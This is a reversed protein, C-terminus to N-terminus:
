QAFRSYMKEESGAVFTLSQIIKPDLDMKDVEEWDLLVGASRTLLDFVKRKGKETLDPTSCCVKRALSDAVLGVNGGYSFGLIIDGELSDDLQGRGEEIYARLSNRMWDIRVHKIEFDRRNLMELLLDYEESRQGCGPILYIRSKKM